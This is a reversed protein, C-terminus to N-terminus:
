SSFHQNIYEVMEMVQQNYTEVRPLNYQVRLKELNNPDSGDEEKGDPLDVSYSGDEYTVISVDGPARLSYTDNEYTEVEVGDDSRFNYTDNEFTTLDTDDPYDVAFTGNEYVTIEKGDDTEYDGPAVDVRTKMDELSVGDSSSAGGKSDSSSASSSKSTETSSKSSYTSSEIDGSKEVSQSTSTSSTGNSTGGINICATLTLVGTSLLLLSTLKKM